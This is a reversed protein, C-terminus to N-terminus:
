KMKSKNRPETGWNPLRTDKEIRRKEINEERKRKVEDRMKEVERSTDRFSAKVYQYDPALNYKGFFEQSMELNMVVENYM